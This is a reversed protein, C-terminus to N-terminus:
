HHSPLLDCIARLLLEPPVPKTLHLDFGVQASKFRDEADSLCTVAIAPAEMGVRRLLRIVSRGDVEPLVIDSIVVDPAQISCADVAELGSSAAVVVAGLRSLYLATLELCDPDDELLLVRVGRLPGGTGDDTAVHLM